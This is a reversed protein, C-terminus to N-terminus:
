TSGSLSDDTSSSGSPALRLPASLPQDFTEVERQGALGKAIAVVNEFNGIAKPPVQRIGIVKLGRTQQLRSDCRKSVCANGAGLWGFLSAFRHNRGFGRVIRDVVPGSPQQGHDVLQVLRAIM